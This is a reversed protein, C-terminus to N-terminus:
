AVSPNAYKPSSAEEGAKAKLLKIIKAAQEELAGSSTDIQPWRPGHRMYFTKLWRCEKTCNQLSSYTSTSRGFDAMREQRISALRGPEITLAICKGQIAPDFLEKPPQEDPVVPYNAVKFGRQALFISLPTKGARSLGIIIVDADKWLEPHVGDDLQRTFEIAEVMKLCTESLSPRMASMSVKSQRPVGLISEMQALMPEWLDVTRLENEGDKRPRQAEASMARRPEDRMLTYVILANEERARRTIELVEAEYRIFPFSTV